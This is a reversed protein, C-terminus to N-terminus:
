KTMGSTVKEATVTDSSYPSRDSTVSVADGVKLDALLKKEFITEENTNVMIKKDLTEFDKGTLNVPEKPNKLKDPNKPKSFDVMKTIITLQNGSISEVTGSFQKIVDVLPSSTKKASTQMSATGTKGELSNITKQQRFVMAGVLLVVVILVGVTILIIKEFNTM